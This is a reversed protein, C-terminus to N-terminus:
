KTELSDNLDLKSQLSYLPGTHICISTHAFTTHVHACAHIDHICIYIHTCVPTQFAFRPFWLSMAGHLSVNLEEYLCFRVDCQSPEASHWLIVDARGSGAWNDMCQEEVDWSCHCHGLCDTCPGMKSPCTSQFGKEKGKKTSLFLFHGVHGRTSLHWKATRPDWHFAPLPWIQLFLFFDDGYSTKLLKSERWSTRAVMNQACTQPQWGFFDLSESACFACGMKVEENFTGFWSPWRWWCNGNGSPSIM